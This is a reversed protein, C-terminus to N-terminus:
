FFHNPSSDWAGAPFLQKELYTAAATVLNKKPQLAPPFFQDGTTKSTLM